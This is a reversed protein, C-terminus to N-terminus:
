FSREDPLFGFRVALKLFDDCFNQHIPHSNLSQWNRTNFYNTFYLRDLTWETAYSHFDLPGLRSSSRTSDKGFLIYTLPATHEFYFTTAVIESELEVLSQVHNCFCYYCPLNIMAFGKFHLM